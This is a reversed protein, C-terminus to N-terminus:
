IRYGWAGLGSPSCNRKRGRRHPQQGGQGVILVIRPHDCVAFRAPVESVQLVGPPTDWGAGSEVPHSNVVETLENAERANASPSPKGIIPLNSPCVCTWVVPRYAWRTRSVTLVDAARMPSLM